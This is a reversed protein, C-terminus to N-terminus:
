AGRAFSVSDEGSSCEEVGTVNFALMEAVQDPRHRWGKTKTPDRGKHYVSYNGEDWVM